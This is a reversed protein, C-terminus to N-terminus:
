GCAPGGKDGYETANIPNGSQGKVVSSRGLGAFRRQAHHLRAAGDRLGYGGSPYMSAFSTRIAFKCNLVHVM